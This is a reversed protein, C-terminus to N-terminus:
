STKLGSNLVPDPINVVDTPAAKVNSFPLFVTTILFLALIIKVLKYMHKTEEKTTPRM